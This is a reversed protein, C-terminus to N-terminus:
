LDRLEERGVEKKTIIAKPIRAALTTRVTNTKRPNELIRNPVKRREDMM